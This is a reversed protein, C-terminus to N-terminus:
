WTPAVPIQGAHSNVVEYMALYRIPFAVAHGDVDIGLVLADDPLDAQDAAVTEPDVPAEHVRMEALERPGGPRLQVYAKVTKSEKHAPNAQSTKPIRQGSCDLQGFPGVYHGTIRQGDLQGTFTLAQEGIMRKFSLKSGDFALDLMKMESGQSLWIGSVTEGNRSIVMTADISREGLKTEMAWQGLLLKAKSLDVVAKTKKATPNPKSSADSTKSDGSQDENAEISLAPEQGTKEYQELWEKVADIAPRFGWPGRKGAVALRGDKRVLFVRDPWGHYQKDVVNDIGDILCPITLKKDKVLRSAVNCREGFTKHEKIGMEKAYPVPFTDDEAHAESIYVIYFEAIDKYTQYMREM